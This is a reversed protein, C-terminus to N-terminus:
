EGAWECLLSATDNNTFPHTKRGPLRDTAKHVMFMFSEQSSKAYWLIRLAIQFNYYLCVISLYEWHFVIAIYGPEGPAKLPCLNPQATKLLIVIFEKRGNASLAYIAIFIIVNLKLCM